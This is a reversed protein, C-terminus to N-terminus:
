VYITRRMNSNTRIGPLVLRTMKLGARPESETFGLGALGWPGSYGLTVDCHQCAWTVRCSLHPVVRAPDRVCFEFDAVRPARRGWAPLPLSWARGQGRGPFALHLGVTPVQPTGARQLDAISWYFLYFLIFHLTVWVPFFFFFFMAFLVLNIVKAPFHETLKKRTRTWINNQIFWVSCNLSPFVRLHAVQLSM